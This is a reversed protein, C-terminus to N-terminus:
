ATTPRSFPARCRNLRCDPSWRPLMGLDSLTAGRADAAPSNSSSAPSGFGSLGGWLFAAATGGGRAWLPRTHPTDTVTEPVTNDTADLGFSQASRMQFSAVCSATAATSRPRSRGPAGLQRSSRTCPASAATDSSSPASSSTSRCPCATTRLKAQPTGALLMAKLASPRHSAAANCSPPRRMKSRGAALHMSENTKAFGASLTHKEGLEANMSVECAFPLAMWTQVLLNRKSGESDAGRRRGSGDCGMATSSGPAGASSSDSSPPAAAGPAGLSPSSGASPAVALATSGSSGSSSVSESTGGAFHSAVSCRSRTFSLFLGASGGLGSGLAGNKRGLAWSPTVGLNAAGSSAGSPSPSSSCGAELTIWLSRCRASPSGM